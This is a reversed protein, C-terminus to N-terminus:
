DTRKVGRFNDLHVMMSFYNARSYKRNKIFVAVHTFWTYPEFFVQDCWFSM